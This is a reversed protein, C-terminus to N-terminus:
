RAGLVGHDSVFVRASVAHPARAADDSVRRAFAAETAGDGHACALLVDRHPVAVLFPDGLEAALTARLSPLLLRASDLGDGTRSVCMAGSGIDVRTLRAEKARGGLNEVALGLADAVALSWAELDKSSVFRSRGDYALVLAVRVDGALPLMVLSGELAFSPGVLRPLLRVEAEAREIARGRGGPLMEVLKSVSRSLTGESEGTTAEITRTLDVEIEGVFVTRDFRATIARPSSGESLAHEFALSVRAIPGDGRAEAEALRTAEVLIAKAPREDLAREIAAFPDVFGARGLRVRNVGERSVHEGDGTHALLVLGFFAGAGEVFRAEEQASGEGSAFADIARALALLAPAGAGPDPGIQREAFEVAPAQLLGAGRVENLWSWSM